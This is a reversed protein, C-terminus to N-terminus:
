GCPQYRSAYSTSLQGALAAKEAALQDTTQVQKLYASKTVCGTLGFGIALVGSWRQITQM